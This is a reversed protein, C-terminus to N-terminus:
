RYIVCLFRWVWSGALLTELLAPQKAVGAGTPGTIMVRPPPLVEPHERARSAGKQPLFPPPSPLIGFGEVRIGGCGQHGRMGRFGSVGLSKVASTQM